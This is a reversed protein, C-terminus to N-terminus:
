TIIIFMNDAVLSIIAPNGFVDLMVRHTPGFIGQVRNDLCRDFLVYYEITVINLQIKGHESTRLM